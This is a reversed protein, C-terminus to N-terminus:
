WELDQLRVGFVAQCHVLDEVMGPHDPKLRGETDLDILVDVLLLPSLALLRLPLLGVLGGLALGGLILM